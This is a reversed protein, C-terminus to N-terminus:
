GTRLHSERESSPDSTVNPGPGGGHCAIYLFLVSYLLALEGKNVGPFFGADFALKWHFQTYAVAMTGSALFAAWATFVGGAIALGAVLEILGGVWLQSGVPPRFDTMVGFLKQFGHFAFLLGSVIRLFVYAAESKPGLLRELMM